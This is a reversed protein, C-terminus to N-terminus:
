GKNILILGIIVIVFGSITTFNFSLQHYLLLSIAYFATVCVDYLAADFGLRKTHYSIFAWIINYSLGILLVMKWNREIAFHASFLSTFFIGLILISYHIFPNM